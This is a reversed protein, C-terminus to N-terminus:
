PCPAEPNDSAFPLVARGDRALSALWCRYATKPAGLNFTVYHGDFGDAEYLLTYVSQDGRNPGAPLPVQQAGMRTIDDFLNADLSPGALDFRGAMALAAIMRPLFYGDILGGILLVNKPPSDSFPADTWRRAFNMAETAEAATQFLTALPHFPDLPEDAELGLVLAVAEAILLPEQKLAVNYIWSGGAGSLIGSAFMPEAGLVIAGVSSGTSQGMLAFRNADLRVEDAMVDNCLPAVE